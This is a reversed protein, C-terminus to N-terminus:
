FYGGKKQLEQIDSVMGPDNDEGSAKKSKMGSEGLIGGTRHAEIEEPTPHEKDEGEPKARLPTLMAETEDFVEKLFLDSSGYMFAELNVGKKQARAAVETTAAQAYSKLRKKVEEPLDKELEPYYRSQFTDWLNDGRQTVADNAATVARDHTSLARMNTQLTTTMRENIGKQYGDLDEVPNPLGAFDIEQLKPEAPAQPLAGTRGTAMGLMSDQMQNMRSSLGEVSKILNLVTDESTKPGGEDGGGKSEVKEEKVPEGGLNLYDLISDDKKEKKAM